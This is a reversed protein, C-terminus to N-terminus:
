THLSLLMVLAAGPNTPSSHDKLMSSPVSSKIRCSSIAEGEPCEQDLSIGAVLM